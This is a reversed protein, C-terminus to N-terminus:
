NRTAAVLASPVPMGDTADATTTVLRRRLVSLDGPRFGLEPLEPWWKEANGELPWSGERMCFRADPALKIDSCALGGTVAAVPPSPPSPTGTVGDVEFGVVVGVGVSTTATPVTAPSVSCWWLAASSVPLSSASRTVLASGGTPTSELWPLSEKGAAPGEDGTAAPAAAAAAPSGRELRVRARVGVRFGVRVRVSVRVSVRGEVRVGVRVM